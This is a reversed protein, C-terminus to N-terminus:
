NFLAAVKDLDRQTEEIGKSAAFELILSANPTYTKVNCAFTEFDFTGQGLHLHNDTKGDNDHIHYAKIRSGLAKQVVLIDFDTLHAHGVDIICDLQPNRVFLDIFQEQNFIASGMIGLHLNEVLMRLRYEKARESLELMRRESLSRRNQLESESLGFPVKANTHVVINVAGMEKCIPFPAAISEMVSDDEDTSLDLFEFPAHFSLEGTRNKMVYPIAKRWFDNSGFDYMVEIGVTPDFKAIDLFFPGLFALSSVSINM